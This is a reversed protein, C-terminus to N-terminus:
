GHSHTEDSEFSSSLRWRTIPPFIMAKMWARIAMAMRADRKASRGIPM